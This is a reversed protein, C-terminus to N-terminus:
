PRLDLVAIGNNVGPFKSSGQCVCFLDKGSIEIMKRALKHNYISIKDEAALTILHAKSYGTKDAAEGLMYYDPEIM